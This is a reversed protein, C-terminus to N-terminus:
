YMTYTDAMLRVTISVRTASSATRISSRAYDRCGHGDVVTRNVNEGSAASRVPRGWSADSSSRTVILTHVICMSQHALYSYPHITATNFQRVDVNYCLFAVVALAYVRQKECTNTTNKQRGTVMIGVKPPRIALLPHDAVSRLYRLANTQVM